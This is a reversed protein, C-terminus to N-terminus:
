LAVSEAAQELDLLKAVLVSADTPFQLLDFPSRQRKPDVAEVRYRHPQYNLKRNKPTSDVSVGMKKAEGPFFKEFTHWALQPTDFRTAQMFNNTWVVCSLMVHLYYASGTDRGYADLVRSVYYDSHTALARRLAQKPDMAEKRYRNLPIRIPKRNPDGSEGAPKFIIENVEFEAPIPPDQQFPYNGALDPVRGKKAYAVTVHPQYDPYENHNPCAQRIANSLAVLEESDVDFKVVDYDPNNDFLTVSTLTATFPPTDRILALLAESPEKEELGYLVTCHIEDERGLGGKEDYYLQENPIMERGWKLVFDSHAAPLNVQTSSLKYLQEQVLAENILALAKM